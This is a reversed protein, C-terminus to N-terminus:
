ARDACERGGDVIRGRRYLREILDPVEQQAEAPAPELDAREPVNAAHDAHRDRERRPVIEQSEREGLDARVTRRAHLDRSPEVRQDAVEDRKERLLTTRRQM